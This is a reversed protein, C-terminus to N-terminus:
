LLQSQARQRVGTRFAAAAADIPKERGRFAGGPRTPFFALPSSAPRTVPWSCLHCARHLNKIAPVYASAGARCSDDRKDHPNAHREGSGLRRRHGHQVEGILDLARRTLLPIPKLLAQGVQQDIVQRLMGPELEDAALLHLQGDHPHDM